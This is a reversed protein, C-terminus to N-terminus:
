HYLKYHKQYSNVLICGTFNIAAIYYLLAPIQTNHPEKFYEYMMFSLVLTISCIFWVLWLNKYLRVFEWSEKKNKCVLTLKLKKDKEDIILLKQVVVDDKQSNLEITSHGYAELEDKTCKVFSDYSKGTACLMNCNCTCKKDTGILILAM